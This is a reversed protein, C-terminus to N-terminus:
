CTLCTGVGNSSMKSVLCVCLPNNSRSTQYQPCHSLSCCSGAVCQLSSPLPPPGDNLCSIGVDTILLMHFSVTSHQQFHFFFFFFSPTVNVYCVCSIDIVEAPFVQLNKLSSTFVLHFSLMYFPFHLGQITCLLM